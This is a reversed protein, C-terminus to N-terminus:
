GWLEVQLVWCAILAMVAFVLHVKMHVESMFARGIGVFAVAFSKVQSQNKM